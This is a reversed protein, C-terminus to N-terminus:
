TLSSDLYLMVLHFLSGGLHRHTKNQWREKLSSKSNDTWNCLVVFSHNQHDNWTICFNKWFSLFFTSLLHPFARELFALSHPKLSASRLWCSPSAKGGAQSRAHAPSPCPRLDGSDGLSACLLDLPQQEWVTGEWQQLSFTRPLIGPGWSGKRVQQSFDASM